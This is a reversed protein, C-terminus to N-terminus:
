ADFEACRTRIWSASPSEREAEWEPPLDAVENLTEDFAVLIGVSVHYPEHPDVHDDKGCLFQWDGDERTVLLVPRERRFVHGCCFAGLRNDFFRKIM